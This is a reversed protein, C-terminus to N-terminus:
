NRNNSLYITKANSRTFIIWCYFSYAILLVVLLIVSAICNAGPLNLLTLYSAIIHCIPVSAIKLYDRQKFGDFAVISWLIHFLIFICSLIASILFLSVSPCSPSFYTGPGLAEWLITIYTVLSHTIGSGMGFALAAKFNDPHTTLKTTQNKRIFGKESKSYLMFFLFRLLEQFLITWLITWFWVHRLSPIIIWWISALLMAVLWFFASGITLIILRANTSIVQIYLAIAPSFALLFCGFFSLYGM